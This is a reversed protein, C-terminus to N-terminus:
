GVEEAEPEEQVASEGGQHDQHLMHEPIVMNHAIVEM